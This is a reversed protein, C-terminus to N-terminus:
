IDSVPRLLAACPSRVEAKELDGSMKSVIDATAQVKQQVATAVDKLREVEAEAEDRERNAEEARAEAAQSVVLDVEANECIRSADHM